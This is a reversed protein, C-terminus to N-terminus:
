KDTKVHINIQDGVGDLVVTLKRGSRDLAYAQAGRKGPLIPESIPLKATGKNFTVLVRCPVKLTSTDTLVFTYSGPKLNGFTVNGEGNTAGRAVIQPPTPPQHDLGVDTGDIPKGPEAFAIAATLAVVAAFAVFVATFKRM